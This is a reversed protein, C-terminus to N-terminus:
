LIKVEGVGKSEEQIQGFGEMKRFGAFDGLAEKKCRTHISRAWEANFSRPEKGNDGFAGCVAWRDERKILWALCLTGLILPETNQMAIIVYTMEAILIGTLIKM